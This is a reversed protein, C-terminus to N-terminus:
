PEEVAAAPADDILRDYVSALRDHVRERAVGGRDAAALAGGMGVGEKAEGRRYAAAAPHDLADFGPDTATVDLDAAAALEDLAASDDGAVFTTTALRLRGTTGAHRALAAAAALQTGGALTLRTDAGGAGATLGAVAALVPDGMARLARIPEGAADGAALDSAALGAAVVERKLGLPNESLSSSVGRPEGLAALVGMATTTGGPITEGVLLPGPLDRGLHRAREFLEGADPVPEPDRVDGGPVDGLAVTPAATEVGLGADVVTAPFGVTERVARTVVAPTPCGSPSVPVVPTAVPAGYALIEADAAPTHARLAPSAGAATIGDIRATATAGAVLVLRPHDNM